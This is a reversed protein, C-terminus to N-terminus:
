QCEKLTRIKKFDYKNVTYLNYSHDKGYKNFYEIAKELVDNWECSKLIIMNDWVFYFM